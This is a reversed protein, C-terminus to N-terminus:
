PLNALRDDARAPMAPSVGALGHVLNRFVTGRAEFNAFQDYSACAPSLLVVPIIPHRSRGAGGGSRARAHRRHRARGHGSRRRSNRAGRRDSLGQPHSPFLRVPPSAGARPRAARSGSSTKSVPWRRRRPDANTAKSDISSCCRDRRGVEEMRHPLGPFSNLGAQIARAGLGLALRPPSRAPPTRRMTAVAYRAPAASCRLEGPWRRRLRVHDPRGRCLPWACAAPAGIGADGQHRCTRCPGRHGPGM